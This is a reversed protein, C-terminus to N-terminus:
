SLEQKIMEENVPHSPHTTLKLLTKEWEPLLLHCLLNLIVHVCMKIFSCCFLCNLIKNENIDKAM